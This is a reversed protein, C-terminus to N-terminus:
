RDRSQRKQLESVLRDLCDALHAREETTLCEFLASVAQQHRAMGADVRLQGLDTLAVLVVRRDDPDNRREILGQAVLADVMVSVNQASVGLSTTLARMPIPGQERLAALLRLRAVSTGDDPLHRAVWRMYAPGFQAFRRVLGIASADNQAPPPRRSM